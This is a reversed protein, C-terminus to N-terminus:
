QYIRKYFFVLGIAVFLTLIEFGPTIPEVVEESNISSQLDTTQWNSPSISLTKDKTVTIEGTSSPIFDTSELAETSKFEVNFTVDENNSNEVIISKKDGSIRVTVDEQENESNKDVIYERAVYKGQSDEYEQTCKITYNSDGEGTLRVNYGEQNDEQSVTIKEGKESSITKNILSYTQNKNNLSFTYEGSDKTSNFYFSLEEDEPLFLMINEYFNSSQLDILPVSYPIESLIQGKVIGTKKGNTDEAYYTSDGSGIAVLYSIGPPIDHDTIDVSDIYNLQGADGIVESYTFYCIEDQWISTSNWQYLWWDSFKSNVNCEIYPYFDFNSYNTEHHYSVHAHNPDYIYMKVIDDGSDGPVIRWPIVAHGKSGERISLVGYEGDELDDSITDVLDDLYPHMGTWGSSAWDTFYMDMIQAVRRPTVEDSYQGCQRAYYYRWTTNWNERELADIHTATDQIEIPTIRAPSHELELALTCMGFCHGGRGGRRIKSDYLRWAWDKKWGKSKDLYIDSDGYISEMMDWSWTHNEDCGWNTFNLGWYWQFPAHIEIDEGAVSTYIGEMDTAAAYYRFTGLDPDDNVVRVTRTVPSEAPDFHFDHPIGNVSITLLRVGDPDTANATINVTQNDGPLLRCNSPIANQDRFEISLDIESGSSSGVVSVPLTISQPPSGGKDNAEIIFTKGPSYMTETHSCTLTTTENDSAFVSCLEISGEKIILYELGVNDTATATLTVSDGSHPSEPSIVYSIECAESDEPPEEPPEEPEEGSSTYYDVALLPKYYTTEDSSFRHFYNGTSEFAVGYNVKTGDFWDQVLSTAEWYSRGTTSITVSDVLGQTKSFDKYSPKTNWTVTGEAWSERIRYMKVAINEPNAALYLSIRASQIDADEPLESLDFDVFSVYSYTFEDEGVDLYYRSSGTNFNSSPYFESVFVSSVSYLYKTYEEPPSSQSFNTMFPMIMGFVFLVVIVCIRMKM